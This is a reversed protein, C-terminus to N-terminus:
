QISVSIKRVVKGSKVSLIYLGPTLGSTPIKVTGGNGTIKRIFKGTTDFMLISTKRGEPCEITMTGKVPNPFVRIIENESEEFNLDTANNEVVVDCGDTLGSDTSKIGILTRGPAKAKIMGEQSVTAISEDESWWEAQPYLADEPLLVYDLQLSDGPLLTVSSSDLEVSTVTGDAMNDTISLKPSLMDRVYETITQDMKLDRKIIDENPWPWLPQTTLVGNIYRNNVYPSPSTEQKIKSPGGILAREPLKIDQDTGTVFGYNLANKWIVMDEFEGNWHSMVHVAPNSRPLD